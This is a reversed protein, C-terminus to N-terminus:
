RRCTWSCGWRNAQYHLRSVNMRVCNANNIHKDLPYVRLQDAEDHLDYCSVIAHTDRWLGVGGTCMM